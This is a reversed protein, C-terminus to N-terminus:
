LEKSNPTRPDRTVIMRKYALRSPQPCNDNGLQCQSEFPILGETWKYGRQTETYRFCSLTFRSSMLTSFLSMDNQRVEFLFLWALSADTANAKTDAEGGAAFLGACKRLGVLVLNEACLLNILGM